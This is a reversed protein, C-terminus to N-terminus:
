GKDGRIPIEEGRDQSGGERWAEKTQGTERERRQGRKRGGGKEGESM